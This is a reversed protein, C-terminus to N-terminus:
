RTSIPPCLRLAAAGWIGSQAGLPSRVADIELWNSLGVGGCVVIVDPYYLNTILEVASKAAENAQAIDRASPNPTLAAGGLLDEFTAGGKLVIDNLRPYEGQPGMLIEGRDVIGCGVGTGLALTAVRLGAFEPLCAHGWATALGDNLATLRVRPLDARFDTGEHDPIIPKAEVVVASQPAITGGTSIGVEYIGRHDCQSLIWEARGARSQPLPAKAFGRIETSGSVTAARIWTGGIDVAVVERTGLTAAQLFSRTQKVPDNLAGGIVVALAGATRAAQVQWLGSYRGEAIVPAGLKALERVMALDPGSVEESDATYGSLTTGVLDAGQELALRASEVTDCDAMVLRGAEHIRAVLNAFTEGGPRPRATGDLAIVECGTQLLDDVECLTPTIYVPSGPYERKILGIIPVQTEERIARITPAGQLRLVQVGEGLSARACRLLTDIDEM